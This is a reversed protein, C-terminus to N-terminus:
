LTVSLDGSDDEDAELRGLRGRVDDHDAVAPKRAIQRELPGQQGGRGPGSERTGVVRRGRRGAGGEHSDRHLARARREDSAGPLVALRAFDRRVDQRRGYDSIAADRPYARAVP